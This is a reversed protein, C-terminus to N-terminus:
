KFWIYSIFWADLSLAILAVLFLHDKYEYPVMIMAPIFFLALAVTIVFCRMIRKSVKKNTM